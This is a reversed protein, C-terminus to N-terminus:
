SGLTLANPAIVFFRFGILPAKAIQHGREESFEDICLRTRGDKKRRDHCHRSWIIKFHIDFIDRPKISCARWRRLSAPRRLAHGPPPRLAKVM